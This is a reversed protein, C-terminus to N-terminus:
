SHQKTQCSRSKFPRNKAALKRSCIEQLGLTKLTTTQNIFKTMRVQQWDNEEAIYYGFSYALQDSMVGCTGTLLFNFFDMITGCANWEPRLLQNKKLWALTALGYGTSM